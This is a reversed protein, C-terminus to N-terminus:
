IVMRTKKPSEPVQSKHQNRQVRAIIDNVEDVSIDLEGAITEGSEEKEISRYLIKDLLEYTMGIEDEDTQNNWLGARPPKNIIEEPVELYRALEYVNTKYLDGIPEMDCAGDGYKTFYGILIESKNGTGCVLYNKSNAYFYIISMRIRAKLNGIALKDDQIQTVSLFENLISDIAMEKYNIGLQQAIATGHLKDETPTTTSPMVIGFVNEAGVAECALFAAVTSDIGGSLGVVLGDANAESVKNQVFEIIDKKTKEVDIKPIENMDFVM